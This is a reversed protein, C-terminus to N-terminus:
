HSSIAAAVIRKLIANSPKPQNLFQSTFAHFFSTAMLTTAAIDADLKKDLRSLKQEAAIYRQLRAIAGQPGKNRDTLSKRYAILLETDAFLGCIMPIVQEHFALMARFAKTLNQLPTSSGVSQELIQLPVLMEPLSEELVALLLKLRSEFHVYLAAECCGAQEAISRTTVNALGQTGILEKAAAIIQPRRSPRGRSLKEKKM